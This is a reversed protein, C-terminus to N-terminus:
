SGMDLMERKLKVQETQPLKEFHPRIIESQKAPPLQSLWHRHVDHRIRQEHDDIGM